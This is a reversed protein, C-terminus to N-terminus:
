ATKQAEARYAAARAEIQKWLDPNDKQVESRLDRYLTSFNRITGISIEYEGCHDKSNKM